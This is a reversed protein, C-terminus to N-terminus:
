TDTKEPKLMDKFHSGTIYRVFPYIDISDYDEPILFLDVHIMM